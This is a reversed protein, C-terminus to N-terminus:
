RDLRQLKKKLLRCYDSKSFLDKQNIGLMAVISVVELSPEDTTTKECNRIAVQLANKIFTDKFKENMQWTGFQVLASYWRSDEGNKHLALSKKWMRELEFNWTFRYEPYILVYYETKKLLSLIEGSSMTEGYGFLKQRYEREKETNFLLFVHSEKQGDYERFYSPEIGIGRKTLNIDIIACLREKSYYTEDGEIAKLYKGIKLLTEKSLDQCKVCEEDYYFLNNKSCGFIKDILEAKGDDNMSNLKAYENSRNYIIMKKKSRGFLEEDDDSDVDNLKEIGTRKKSTQFFGENDDLDVFLEDDDFDVDSSKSRDFRDIDTRKKLRGFFEEEDDSDVDSVNSRDISLRKKSRGNVEEDDDM